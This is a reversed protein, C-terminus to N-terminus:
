NKNDELYKQDYNFSSIQVVSTKVGDVYSKRDEPVTDFFYVPPHRVKNLHWHPDEWGLFSAFRVLHIEDYKALSVKVGNKETLHGDAVGARFVKREVLSECDELGVLAERIAVSDVFM